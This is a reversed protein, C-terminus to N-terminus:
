ATATEVLMSLRMAQRGVVDGSAIIRTVGGDDCRGSM